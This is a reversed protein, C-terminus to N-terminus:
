KVRKKISRNMWNGFRSWFIGQAWNWIKYFGPHVFTSLRVTVHTESELRKSLFELRYPRILRFSIVYSGYYYQLDRYHDNVQGIEGALSLLPGHHTNLVGERFYKDEQPKLLFEVRYPFVQSKTFTAPDNLWAWVQEEKYKTEFTKEFVHDIFHAPKTNNVVLKESM